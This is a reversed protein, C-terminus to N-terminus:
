IRPIQTNYDYDVLVIQAVGLTHMETSIILTVRTNNIIKQIWSLFIAITLPSCIQNIHLVFM